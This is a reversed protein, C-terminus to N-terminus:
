STTTSYSIIMLGYLVITETKRDSVMLSVNWCANLYNGFHKLL